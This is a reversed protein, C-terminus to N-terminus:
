YFNPRIFKQKPEIRVASISEAGAAVGDVAPALALMVMRSMRGGKSLKSIAPRRSTQESRTLFLDFVFGTKQSGHAREGINQPVLLGM